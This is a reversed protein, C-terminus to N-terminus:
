FADVKYSVQNLHFYLDSLWFKLKAYESLNFYSVNMGFDNAIDELFQNKKIEKQYESSNRKLNHIDSTNILTNFFRLTNCMGQYCNEIPVNILSLHSRLEQGEKRTFSNINLLLYDKSILFVSNNLYPFDPNKLDLKIIKVDYNKEIWELAEFSSKQGKYYGGIYINDKLYRLNLEGEFAFPCRSINYGLFQFFNEINKSAKPNLIIIDLNPLLVGCNATILSSISNKDNTPLLYICSESAMYNYLEFFQNVLKPFNVKRRILEPHNEFYIPSNILYVPLELKTPIM